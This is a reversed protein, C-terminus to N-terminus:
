LEITIDSYEMPEAEHALTCSESASTPSLYTERDNDDSEHMVEM